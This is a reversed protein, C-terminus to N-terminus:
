GRKSEGARPQNYIVKLYVNGSGCLVCKEPLRDKLSAQQEGCHMCRYVIM